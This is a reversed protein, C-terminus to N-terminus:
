LGDSALIREPLGSIGLKKHFRVENEHESSDAM